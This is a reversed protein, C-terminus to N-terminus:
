EGFLLVPLEALPVIGSRPFIQCGFWCPEFQQPIKMVDTFATDKMAFNNLIIFTSLLEEGKNQQFIVPYIWDPKEEMKQILMLQQM